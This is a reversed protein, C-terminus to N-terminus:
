QKISAYNNKTINDKLVRSLTDLKCYYAHKVKRFIACFSKKVDVITPMKVEILGLCKTLEHHRGYYVNQNELLQKNSKFM